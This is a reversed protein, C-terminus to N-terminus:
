NARILAKAGMRRVACGSVYVRLGSGGDRKVKAALSGSLQADLADDPLHGLLCRAVVEVLASEATPAHKLCEWHESRSSDLGPQKLRQYRHLGKRVQQELARRQESEYDLLAHHADPPLLDPLPFAQSPKGFLKRIEEAQAPAGAWLAESM